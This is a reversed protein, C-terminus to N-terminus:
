KERERRLWDTFVKRLENFFDLDKEDVLGKTTKGIIKTKYNNATTLLENFKPYDRLTRSAM